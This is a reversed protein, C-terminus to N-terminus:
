PISQFMNGVVYQMNTDTPAKTVVQPLDLVTCKLDLFAVAITTAAGGLEGTADILSTLGYFVKGCEKLVIWM